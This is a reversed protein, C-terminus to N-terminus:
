VSLIHYTVLCPKGNNGNNNNNNNNNNNAFMNMYTEVDADEVYQSCQEDSFVGIKIRTGSSACMSGAYYRANQGDDDTQVEGLAVCGTYQSADLYGNAEMNEINQCEDYCTSTDVSGCLNAYGDDDVAGNAAKEYCQNCSQCYNEQKQQMFELTAELYTDMDVIYEGYQYSCSDCGSPCMRFVVFRKTSLITDVGNKNKNNNNKNNGNDGSYQKVMQCKEFKISYTSLDAEVYGDYADELRRIATAGRMLKSKYAAERTSPSSKPAFPNATATAAFIATLFLKM